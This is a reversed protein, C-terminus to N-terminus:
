KASFTRDIRTVNGQKDKVSVTLKENTGTLPTALKLEYVGGGLATFKEALNTGPAAGNATFTATVTFSTADLGTGYDHMGILIRDLPPNVGAKPSTLALTPRQDDLAWGFSTKQPAAPDYDLDIPCGLDIWRVLTLKDEDTLPAVKGAKVAEPPPMVSGTFDLDARNRNALTNTVPEGKLKLTRADGPTTETPFDDNSWGDLRAGYVKWILLSRRSQFMRVYRSANAGRWGTILPKHGFRGAGDMALRYYTGPVDDCDAVNVTKHDDLVLKAAADGKLTHCAACSRDLIPKVDRFYEVNKVGDAFKLGSERRADWQKKSEDQTKSTLLPTKQTLDFVEYDAKAAATLKFETPKQSHAHCGGCDNRIEGPRVQHWTQAMNLVMGNKDLTQFTFGTDAPIKALFSTDPNGDPDTPEKGNAFKRLPIEGLIRLRETAHSRFTRGSHPGKHRDTAPEMALIRVAHIDDNTYRGADAGQNFWNLSTADVTTNFPDLDQTGTADPGGAFAATVTGPKVVGNPYSERKYFSSTGVLGFPTGAPLHKSLTGDNTLPALTKPEDVGHIRKYPVLARPWQENYKPDNKILLMEGPENVTKGEKILYLGGDVAPVHVTYGGNVPGSSWVTLLHNDPAASPHTVKGVRAGVRQGCVAFDAPGEDARAFQTISEVGYPSFPLRRTRAAGSDLRGHRLVPNRPDLTYGPGFAAEGSPPTVPFKVLSGFGSSTQNYYEEAVISGDSMQTQFHWASPSAGPMFASAVPGWGTGDPNINWLGWLTSARLGQSELSSFMIRGDRMVTPHLAMGLNLHGICEVNSGDEDMVFLQMVHPVRKPPKFGNRNSTFAIKGGPLPCPGTNFVGYEFYNKGAEPTRYDKSWNAAGTNPTFRQRTLQVVKKSKVHIKYIDAGGSPGQSISAGKMDHFHSYFVWEGDFSVVPDTVSGTDGKVLVEETGDPHLLMLDAGPDMFVPNSIEPWNTGVKDGNRRARVYVIDYDLKVTKDSAVPKPEVNIPGSVDPPQPQAEALSVVVLSLAVLLPVRFSM